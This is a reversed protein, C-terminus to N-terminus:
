EGRPAVCERLIIEGTAMDVVCSARYPFQSVSDLLPASEDCKRTTDDIGVFCFMAGNDEGYAFTATKGHAKVFDLGLKDICFELGIRKATDNDLM